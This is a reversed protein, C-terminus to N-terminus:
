WYNGWSSNDLLVQHPVQQKASIVTGEKDVHQLYQYVVVEKFTHDIFNLMKYVNKQHINHKNYLM